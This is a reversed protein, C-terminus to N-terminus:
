KENSEKPDDIPPGAPEDIFIEGLETILELDDDSIKWIKVISSKGGTAFYNSKGNINLLVFRNIEGLDANEIRFIITFTKM